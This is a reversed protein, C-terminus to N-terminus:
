SFFDSKMFSWNKNSKALFRTKKSSEVQEFNASLEPSQKPVYTITSIPLYSKMQNKVCLILVLKYMSMKIIYLTFNNTNFTTWKAKLFQVGIYTHINSNINTPIENQTISVNPKQSVIKLRLVYM